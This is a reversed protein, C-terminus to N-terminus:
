QKHLYVTNKRAEYTRWCSSGCHSSPVAKKKLLPSAVDDAQKLEAESLSFGSRSESRVQEYEKQAYTEQLATESSFM